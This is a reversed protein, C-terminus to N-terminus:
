GKALHGEDLHVEHIFFDRHFAYISFSVRHSFHSGGFVLENLCEKRLSNVLISLKEHLIALESIQNDGVRKNGVLVCELLDSTKLSFAFFNKAREFLSVLVHFLLHALKLSLLSILFSGLLLLDVRLNFGCFLASSFQALFQSFFIPLALGSDFFQTHSRANRKIVFAVGVREVHVM